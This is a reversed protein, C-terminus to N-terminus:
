EDHAFRNYLFDLATNRLDYYLPDEMIQTRDRPRPFPIRMIEGINAAPGNTMMVLRDALFLAEDIDHTIMLVTCRHETWIQLLEEQLEEKTIADLAGFPEDLILLEPRIALARAISVRQKMGGSIQTPKKEAAESLGVMALHHRVIDNKESKSLNPNVSDVALMVNEYVTLWPLLAYGQFVVMRDPGPKTILKGNVMVEGVSPKSFGGVMNLLTSKGCGSHGILCIFEGEQIHLNVDKLVVYEGKPTPYIKSVNEIRLFSEQPPITDIQSKDLITQTM